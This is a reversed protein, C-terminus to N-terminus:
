ALPPYPLGTADSVAAAIEKAREESSGRYLILAAYGHDKSLAAHFQDPHVVYYWWLVGPVIFYGLMMVVVVWDWFDVEHSVGTVVGEYERWPVAVTARPIFAIRLTTTLFSRGKQNRRLNVRQYTGLVFALLAAGIMWGFLLTFLDAGAFAWGLTAVLALGEVGLFVAFRKQLSVGPEWQKDVKQYVREVKKGRQRDFGCHICVVAGRPLSKNCQPCPETQEPDGPVTYPKDDDVTTGV